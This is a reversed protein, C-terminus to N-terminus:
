SLESPEPFCEIVIVTKNLPYLDLAALNLSMYPSSGFM